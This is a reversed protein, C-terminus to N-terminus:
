LVPVNLLAIEIYIKLQKRCINVAKRSLVCDTIILYLKILYRYPIEHPIYEVKIYNCIM